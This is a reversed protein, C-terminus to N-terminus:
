DLRLAPVIPASFAAVAANPDQHHFHAMYARTPARWTGLRVEVNNTTVLQAANAGPKVAIVQFQLAAGGLSPEAPVPWTFEPTFAAITGGASTTGARDLLWDNHLACGTAGLFGLDLPLPVSGWSTRSLGLVSVAPQATGLGTGTLAVQGGPALQGAAGLTAGGCGQGNTTTAGGQPGGLPEVEADLMCNTVGAGANSNGSALVEVILAGGRYVYPTTFPLALAGATGGFEEPNPSADAPFSWATQLVRTAPAALNAAFAGSSAAPTVAAPAMRVELTAITGGNTGLSPGDYRFALRSFLTSAGSGLEGPALVLQMRSAARMLPYNLRSNLESLQPQSPAPVFAQAAVAAASAAAALMSRM